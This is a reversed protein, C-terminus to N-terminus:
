STRSESDIQKLHQELAKLTTPSIYHEIGEVDTAVIHEPIGLKLLFNSLILHKRKSFSAMERGKITLDISPHINDM